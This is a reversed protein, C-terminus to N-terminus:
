QLFFIELADNEAAANSHRWLPCSLTEFWWGRSQKCLRKDLRMYFFCWLEADSAKTRPIWRYSTFEGCLPGTVRFINENSSTMMSEISLLTKGLEICRNNTAHWTAGGPQVIVDYCGFALVSAGRVHKFLDLNLRYLVHIYITKLFVNTFLPLANLM